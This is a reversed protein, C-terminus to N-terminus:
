GGLNSKMWKSKNSKKISRVVFGDTKMGTSASIAATIVAVLELDDVEPVSEPATTKIEPTEQNSIKKKKKIFKNEFYRVHQLLSIIFSLFFLVAFVIVLGMLTNLGAKQMKSALSYEIDIVISNPTGTSTDYVMTVTANEKEFAARYVATIDSDSKSYSSEIFKKYGGLEAQVEQWRNIATTTFSDGQALYTTKEEENMTSLQKIMAEIGEDMNVKQEESLTESQNKNGACAGLGAMLLIVLPLILFRKIRQKM